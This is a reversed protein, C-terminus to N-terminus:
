EFYRYFTLYTIGGNLYLTCIPESHSSRVGGWKEKFPVNGLLVPDPMRVLKHVITSRSVESGMMDLAVSKVGIKM